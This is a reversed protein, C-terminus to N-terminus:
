KKYERFICKTAAIFDCVLVTNFACVLPIMEFDVRSLLMTVVSEQCSVRYGRETTMM